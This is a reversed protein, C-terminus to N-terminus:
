VALAEADLVYLLDAKALAAAKLGMAEPVIQEVYFRASAQKM